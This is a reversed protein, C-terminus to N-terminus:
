GFMGGMGQMMKAMKMQMQKVADNICKVLVKEQDPKDLESNLTINQIEMNGNILVKTGDKEIEVMEKKLEKQLNRLENLQKLKDLM